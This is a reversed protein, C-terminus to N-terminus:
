DFYVVAFLWANYPYVFVGDDKFISNPSTMDYWGGVGINQLIYVLDHDLPYVGTTPDAAACYANLADNYSEKKLFEGNEDFFYRGVNTVNVITYISEQFITKASLKAYLIPGDASNLHYYGDTESYVVKIEEVAGTPNLPNSIDVLIDVYHQSGAPTTIATPTHDIVYQEWPIEVIQVEIDSYREITLTCEEVASSTSKLGIVVTNGVASHLVKVEMVGNELMTGTNNETVFFSGGYYGVEVKDSDTYIHYVAGESPVFFFYTMDDKKVPVRLSGISVRYIGDHEDPYIKEPNSAYEIITVEASSATANVKSINEPVYYVDPAEIKVSYEGSALTSVAKGSADTNVKAEEKTGSMFSVAVDKVPNGYGDVVKVTYEVKVIELVPISETKVTAGCTACVLHKSGTETYTPEKDTIWEGDTHGIAPIKEQATIVAKCVSCRKGETTGANTCTAAVAADTVETHGKAPITTQVELVENCVSCHSGATFGSATCTASVASDNVKSHGNEPITETALTVGCESCVQHRLGAETCTAETDTIWQGAVHPKSAIIETKVTIGCITCVQHRSGDLEATAEKDVIWESEKHGFAPIDETEKEGCSCVRERSGGETCDAEKLVTWAGFSHVHAPETTAEPETTVADTSEATTEDPTEDTTVEDSTEDPAETAPTETMSSGTNDTAETTIEGDGSCSALVFSACLLMVVIVTFVLRNNKM